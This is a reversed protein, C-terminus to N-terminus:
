LRQLEPVWYSTRGNAFKATVIQRGQPDQSRGYCVNPYGGRQGDPTLYDEITLGGKRDSYRTVKVCCIRLREIEVESLTGLRRAPHIRAYYLIESCLYNGISSNYEPKLLFTSVETMPRARDRVLHLFEETTPEYKLLDWGFKSFYNDFSAQDPLYEVKGFRRSDDYFISFEPMELNFDGLAEMQGFVFELHSHKLPQFLYRGTMALFTVIWGASTEFVIRKGRSSVSMIELPLPIIDLGTHRAHPGFQIRILTKGAIKAQLQKCINSVEPGEPM